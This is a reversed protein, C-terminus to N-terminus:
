SMFYEEIFGTDVAGRIFNPHATIEQILPITTKVGTVSFEALARRLTAITEQRTPRHVILKAMLSDYHAPIKYGAHVHTDVRVGLGGPLVFRDITGPCPKCNNSPDEANIRCEIAVGRMLVDPQAYGLPEGSAIRLQEKVLDLNCVEETVPHEVQIRTNVEMFFVEGDKDLLFEVTGANRYGAAEVLRCAHTGVQQRLEASVAPSPSEEIVKQHRRQLSCDREGLHVVNGYHDALVQIEIHRPNELYREIYLHPVGFAGEAENRAQLFSQTFANEEHVVRLGRGGGGGASKIMVPFGIERAVELARKEDVLSGSGPVVPIGNEVALQRARAKDGLIRVSEASPGIFTVHCTECIEAFEANEALFGYGPHIADVGSIEAASMIRPIALYSDQSSAPGICVAADALRLYAAGRDAESYVAVTRIDLEHAARIVRLAIEGRNAVLLSSIKKM